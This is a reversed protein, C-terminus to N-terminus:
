FAEADLTGARLREAILARAPKGSPTRPLEEVALWRRPRKAPDLAKRAKARLERLSPPAAPDIEVIATVLEGFRPHPTASVLVDLVGETDRL